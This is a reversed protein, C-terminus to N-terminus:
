LAGSIAAAPAGRYHSQEAENIYNWANFARSAILDPLLHEALEAPTLELVRQPPLNIMRQTDCGAPSVRGHAAPSTVAPEDPPGLGVWRTPPRVGMGAPLVSDGERAGGLRFVRRSPVLAAM